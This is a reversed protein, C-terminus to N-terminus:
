HSRSGKAHDRLKYLKKSVVKASKSFNLFSCKVGIKSMFGDGYVYDVSMPWRQRHQKLVFGRFHVILNSPTLSRIVKKFSHHTSTKLRDIEPWENTGNRQKFKRVLYEVLSTFLILPSIVSPETDVRTSMNCNPKQELQGVKEFVLWDNLKPTSNPSYSQNSRFKHRWFLYAELIDMLAM